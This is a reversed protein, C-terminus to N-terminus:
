IHILSLRILGSCGACFIRTVTASLGAACTEARAATNANQRALVAEDEDQPWPGGQILIGHPLANAQALDHHIGNPCWAGTCTAPQLIM